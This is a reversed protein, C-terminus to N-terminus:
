LSLQQSRPTQTSAAPKTRAAKPRDPKALRLCAECVVTEDDMRVGLITCAPGGIQCRLGSDEMQHEACHQSWREVRRTCGDMIGHGHQCDMVATQAALKAATLRDYTGADDLQSLNVTEATYQKGRRTVIALICGTPHRLCFTNGKTTWHWIAVHPM